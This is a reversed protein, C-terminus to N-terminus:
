RASRVFSRVVNKVSYHMVVALSAFQYYSLGWAAEPSVRIFEVLFRWGFYVIMFRRFLEGPEYKELMTQAYVFLALVVAAEFLQTPYRLLGDGFDVGWGGPTVTGYCCGALFCGIRGFFIGLLLSPVLFNGLRQTIGLKRKVLYVSLAGGIIGGVITRGSWFLEWHGDIFIRGFNAVWIPIKAGLIGGAAAALAIYLANNGVTKGRTNVRYLVIAAILGLGVFFSYSSVERGLLTFLVPRIGWVAPHAHLDPIM